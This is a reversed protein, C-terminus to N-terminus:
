LAGLYLVADGPPLGLTDALEEEFFGGLPLVPRSVSWGVLCLNQMIHGAELLAFRGARAGYKAGLRDLNGVLVLLAAGGEFQVFSPVSEEWGSRDRGEAVLSLHHGNRDYHYAGRPLWGWDGFPCVYVEVSFLKGASPAPGHGGPRVAGHGFHLLRALTKPEPSSASLDRRSERDRLTSDLRVLPRPKVAPLAITPYGPYRRPSHPQAQSEAALIRDRFEPFSAHDLTTLPLARRGNDREDSM